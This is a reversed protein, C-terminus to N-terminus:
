YKLLYRNLKWNEPEGESDLVEFIKTKAFLTLATKLKM